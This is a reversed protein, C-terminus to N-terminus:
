RPDLTLEFQNDPDTLWQDLYPSYTGVRVRSGTEDFTMLRLYGAGGLEREQYNALIQHVLGGERQESTLRGLGDNLVHGSVVLEVQEFDRVLAQFMEEGDNV